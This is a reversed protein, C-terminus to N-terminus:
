KCMGEVGLQCLFDTREKISLSKFESSKSWDELFYAAKQALQGAEAFLTPTMRPFYCILRKASSGIVGMFRLFYEAKYQGFAQYLGNFDAMLEDHLHNRAEGYRWKTYYHTCEHERRIIMSKQIWDEENLGLDQAPVNSYPKSSLVVFRLKKGYVFSAGISSLTPSRVGKDVVNTIFNEFDETNGITILPIPGAFSEYKEITISEKDLFNVPRKAAIISNLVDGTAETKCRMFLNDWANLFSDDRKQPPNQFHNVLCDKYLLEEDETM